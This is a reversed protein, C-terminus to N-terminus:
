LMFRDRVKAAPQLNDGVKMGRTMCVDAGMVLRSCRRPSWASWEVSVGIDSTWGSGFTCPRVGDGQDIANVRAAKLHYIGATSCHVVTLISRLRGSGGKSGGM